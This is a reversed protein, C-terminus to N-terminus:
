AVLTPDLRGTRLFRRRRAPDRLGFRQWAWVLIGLGLLELLLNWPGREVVPLQEEALSGGALPWWFSQTRTFAGDFM